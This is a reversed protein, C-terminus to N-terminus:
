TGMIPLQVCNRENLWCPCTPRDVQLYEKRLQPARKGRLTIVASTKGRALNLTFGREQFLTHVQALLRQLAPLLETPRSTAWPIALDDSAYLTWAVNAWSTWSIKTRPFGNRWLVDSM